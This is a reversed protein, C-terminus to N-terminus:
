ISIKNSIDLFQNNKITNHHYINKYIQHEFCKALQNVQKVNHTDSGLYDIMGATLLYQANKEAHKGYYGLFSNLNVQFELGLNKLLLFEKKPNQIYRYREPHALIPIYGALQIKYITEELQIPKAIYSTEFLIYKKAIPLLDQKEILNEFGEDLYYEASAEIEININEKELIKKLSELGKLISSSTNKYGEAMIHPTTILKQYGYCQLARILELSEEISQAGDDIGPILHSHIDVRLKPIDIKNQKFFSFM